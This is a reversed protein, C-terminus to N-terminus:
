AQPKSSSNQARRYFLIYAYSSDIDNVSIVQPPSADDLLYWCDRFRVKAIYHGRVAEKMYSLHEAVAYLEYALGQSVHSAEAVGATKLDLFSPIDVKATAKILRHKAADYHTRSLHVVVVPPCFFLHQKQTGM